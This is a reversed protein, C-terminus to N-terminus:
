SFLHLEFFSISCHGVLLRTAFGSYCTFGGTECWSKLRVSFLIYFTGLLVVKGVLDQQHIHGYMTCLDFGLVRTIVM